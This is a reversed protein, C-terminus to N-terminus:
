LAAMSCVIRLGTGQLIQTLAEEVTLNGTAGPSAVDLVDESVLDPAPRTRACARLAPGLGQAPIGPDDKRVSGGGGRRRCSRRDVPVLGDCHGRYADVKGRKGVTRHQPATEVPLAKLRQLFGLQVPVFTHVPPFIIWAPMVLRDCPWFGRREGAVRSASRNTRAARVEVDFREQLFQLLHDIYPPSCATSTCRAQADRRQPDAAPSRYRNFEAVVDALPAAGEFILKKQTWATATKSTPASRLSSRRSTVM